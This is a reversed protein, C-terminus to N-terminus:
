GSLYTSLGERLPTLELAFAELLGPTDALAESTLFDVADPSLPPAPLVQLLFGAARPLAPPVHLIPKRKGMVEMMTTIIEDMTMVDPGGIEFTGRPGASDTAQVIAEAVDEVFVPQLRQRGDGVVPVFPLRRYLSAFRNLARDDPGYAWSPRLIAFELGSSRIAEEGGWKARYRAEPADPAAGVGSSYVFRRVGRDAAAAVLRATGHHDYEEFTYGRSPKEVPFTPFTLAQVVAEAGELATRLSAEDRVDGRVAAVGLSEIRDRSREPDSSMVAVDRGRARLRRVVASGIFGTGGAM